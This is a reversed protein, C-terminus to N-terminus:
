DIPLSLVYSFRSVDSILILSTPQISYISEFFNDMSFDLQSFHSKTVYLRKKERFNYVYM